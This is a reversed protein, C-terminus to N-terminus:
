DHNKEGPTDNGRLDDVWESANPVDSWAKTGKEIATQLDLAQRLAEKIAVETDELGHADEFYNLAMEAAQRLDNM